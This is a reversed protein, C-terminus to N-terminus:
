TTMPEVENQQIQHLRLRPLEFCALYKEDIQRHTIGFLLPLYQEQFLIVCATQRLQCGRCLGLLM